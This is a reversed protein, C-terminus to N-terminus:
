LLRPGEFLPLSDPPDQPQWSRRPAPPSAARARIMERARADETAPGLYGPEGPQRPKM